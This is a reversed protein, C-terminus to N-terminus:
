SDTTLRKAAKVPRVGNHLLIDLFVPTLAMMTGRKEIPM